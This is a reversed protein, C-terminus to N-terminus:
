SMWLMQTFRLPRTSVHLFDQSRMQTHPLTTPPHLCREEEYEEGFFIRARCFIRSKAQAGMGASQRNRWVEEWKQQERKYKGSKLDIELPPRAMVSGSGKSRFPKRTVVLIKVLGGFGIDKSGTVFRFIVM